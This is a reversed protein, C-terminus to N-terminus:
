VCDSYSCSSEHSKGGAESKAKFDSLISDIAEQEAAVEVPFREERIREMRDLIESLPNRRFDIGCRHCHLEGDDHYIVGFGCGTTQGHSFALRVRFTRNEKRLVELEEEPSDYVPDKGWARTVMESGGANRGSAAPKRAERQKKRWEPDTKPTAKVRKPKPFTRQKPRNSRNEQDSMFRGSGRAQDSLMLMTMAPLLMGLNGSSTKGSPPM